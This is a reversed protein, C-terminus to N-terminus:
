PGVLAGDDSRSVNMVDLSVGASGINAGINGTFQDYFAQDETASLDGSYFLHEYGWMTYAGNVVKATDGANLSSAPTLGVGNWSLAKAGATVATNADAFSTISVINVAKPTGLNVGTASKLQVSATTSGLATAVNGGSNFGGNGAIDGNWVSSANTGDGTPWLQLASCVGSAVTSKWQQIPTSIGYAGEALQTTRTGSLDNRGTLYINTADAAVGTLLSLKQFGSGCLGKYAQTTLNTLNASVGKNAVPVFLIVGIPTDTLGSVDYPSSTAYVDSFAFKAPASDNAAAAGYRATVSNPGTYTTGGSSLASAPLFVQNQPVALDRIGEVSGTFTCRIIMDGVGPFDGRFISSTTGQLSALTGATGTHALGTLGAGYSAIITDVAAKRFANAGTVNVVVQAHASAAFAMAALGSLILKSKM